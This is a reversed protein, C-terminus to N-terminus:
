GSPWQSLGTNTAWDHRLRQLGVVIAWWPNYGALRWVLISVRTWCKTVGLITCDMFNELGSYQLPYGKEELPDEWGLSQIYGVNCASKKGDSGGLFGLFTRISM